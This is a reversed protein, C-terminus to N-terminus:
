GAVNGTVSVVIDVVEGRWDAINETACVVMRVVDDRWGTVSEVMDVDGTELLLPSRVALLLVPNLVESLILRPKPRPTPRPVATMVASPAKKVQSMQCRFFFFACSSARINVSTDVGEGGAV